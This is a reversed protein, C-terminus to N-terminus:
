EVMGLGSMLEHLNEYMDKIDNYIAYGCERIETVAEGYDHHVPGCRGSLFMDSCGIIIRLPVVAENELYHLLNPLSSSEHRMYDTIFNVTQRRIMSVRQTQAQTLGEPHELMATCLDIIYSSYETTSAM